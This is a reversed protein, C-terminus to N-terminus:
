LPETGSNLIKMYNEYAFRRDWQKGTFERLIKLKELHRVSKAVTPISIGLKQAAQPIGIIPQEQLLRHVRLASAASRGLSKIKLEDEEFLRLIGNAAKIAQGSTETIGELFFELWTEWDGSDRVQQLLDYYRQRHKKFYLSLYLLPEKLVGQTCFLLTILLRGLRGNGDFFPHITEFQVHILGIKILTPIQPTDAHIFKELDSLLDPVQKHPPPVFLKEGAQNEIWNQGDRFEGPNKNSGRGKSLLIKHIELFLRQSVPLGGPARVQSLGYRMAELCNLLEQVDDLPIEPTEESEFLLLDSLSSQTGEIQSSFVAERMVYPSIFLPPNPLISTVGDLRGLALTAEELRRYLRDMQVTPNPPLPPPIFAEVKEGTTSVIEKRGLRASRKQEQM